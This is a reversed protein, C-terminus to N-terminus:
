PLNCRWASRYADAAEAPALPLHTLSVQGRSNMGRRDDVLGGADAGSGADARIAHDAGLHLEALAHLQMAMHHDIAACRNAVIGFDIGESRDTCRRLIQFILTLSRPKFDPFIAGDALMDGDIGAGFAAPHDRAHAIGAQQHNARMHRMIALHAIMDNEDIVGRQRPMHMSAIM